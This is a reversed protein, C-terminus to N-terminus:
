RLRYTINFKELLPLAKTMHRNMVENNEKSFPNFNLHNDRKFLGENNNMVCDLREESVAINLFDLIKTLEERTNSVLKEYQM